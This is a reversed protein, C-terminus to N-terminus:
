RGMGFHASLGVELAVYEITEEFYPINAYDIEAWVSLGRFMSTEENIDAWLRFGLSGVYGTRVDTAKFEQGGAKATFTSNFRGTRAGLYVSTTRELSGMHKIFRLVDYQVYAGTRENM